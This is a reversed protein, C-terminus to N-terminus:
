RFPQILRTQLINITWVKGKHIVKWGNFHGICIIADAEELVKCSIIKTVAYGVDYLIEFDDQTMTYIIGTDGAIAVDEVQCDNLSSFHGVCVTQVEIPTQIEGAYVGNAVLTLTTADSRAVILYRGKKESGEGFGHLRASVMATIASPLKIQISPQTGALLAITDNYSAAFNYNGFQLHDVCLDTIAAGLRHRDFLKFHHYITLRGSQDGVALVQNVATVSLVVSNVPALETPAASENQYLCLRGNVYGVLLSVSHSDDIIPLCCTATQLPDVSLAFFPSAAWLDVM